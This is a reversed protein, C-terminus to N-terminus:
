AGTDRFRTNSTRSWSSFMFPRKWELYWHMIRTVIITSLENEMRNSSTPADFAVATSTPSACRTRWDLLISIQNAKVDEEIQGTSCNRNNLQKKKKHIDLLEPYTWLIIAIKSSVSIHYGAGHNTKQKWTAKIINNFKSVFYGMCALETSHLRSSLERAPLNLLHIGSIGVTCCLEFWIYVFESKIAPLAPEVCAASITTQSDRETRQYSRM